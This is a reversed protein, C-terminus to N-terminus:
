GRAWWGRGIATSPVRWCMTATPRVTSSRRVDTRAAVRHAPPPSPPPAGLGNVARRRSRRAAIAESTVGPPSAAARGQPTPRTRPPPYPLPCTPCPPPPTAAFPDPPLPPRTWCPRPRGPLSRSLRSLLSANFDFANQNLDCACARFHLLTGCDKLVNNGHSGRRENTQERAGGESGAIARRISSRGKERVIMKRQIDKRGRKEDGAEVRLM